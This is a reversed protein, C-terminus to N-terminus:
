QMKLWANLRRRILPPVDERAVAHLTRGDSTTRDEFVVPYNMSIKSRTSFSVAWAFGTKNPIRYHQTRSPDLFVYDTIEDHIDRIVYTEILEM